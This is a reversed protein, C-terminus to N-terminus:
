PGAQSDSGELVKVESGRIELVQVPGSGHSVSLGVDIRWVRRGCASSIGAKQVTHGVVMRKAGLADLVEGLRRCAKKGVDPDSYPRTWFPSDESRYWAPLRDLDGNMWANVEANIRGIGYRVHSPLLGGHVFVTDGVQLIVPREALQRAFPGGPLFAAARGRERWPFRELNASRDARRVDAFDRFGQRTVYRFNGDVNTVEHNGTLLHLAGGASSAMPKLNNLLELIRREDSGQDLQDGVQVVVLKGGHWGQQADIAGALRLAARTARWDGHLDGVAAVRDVAPFRWPREPLTTRATPRPQAFATGEPQIARPVWTTSSYRSTFACAALLIGVTGLGPSVRCLLTPFKELLRRRRM